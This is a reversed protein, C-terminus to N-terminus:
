DGRKKARILVNDDTGGVKGGTRLRRQSTIGGGGDFSRRRRRLASTVSKCALRPQDALLMEASSQHGHHPNEEVYGGIGV